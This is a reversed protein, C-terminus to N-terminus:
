NVVVRVPNIKGNGTNLNIIYTGLQLDLGEFTFQNKGELINTSRANIVKGTLDTIQIQANSYNEDSSIEVTFNGKTPNPFVIMSNEVDACSASIPGYIKEAGNLDVQKLRYYTVGSFPYTDFATYNLVSSSNGAATVESVFEWISLDRSREVIFSQSNQETATTWKIEVEEKNCNAAFSTFTVPLPTAFESNMLWFESFGPITFEIYSSGAITEIFGNAISITGNSEQPIYLNSTAYSTSDAPNCNDQWSGNENLGNYKSLNIDGISFVDDNVNISTTASKAVLAAVEATTIPFRITAPLNNTPNIYWSRGLVATKYYDNVPDLCSTTIQADANVYSNATVSGFDATPSTGKISVVLKGDSTYFHTWNSGKVICTANDTPSLAATVTPLTLTNSGTMTGVLCGLADVINTVSYTTTATPVVTSTWSGPGTGTLTAGNSLTMTWAGTATINGTLPFDNGYCVNTSTSTFTSTPKPKVVVSVLSTSMCNNTTTATATYTSTVLPKVYVTGADAGAAYSTTAGANTFVDATGTSTWTIPYTLAYGFYMVPKKANTAGGTNLNCQNNGTGGMTSVAAPTYSDVTVATTSNAGSHCINVLINSNGDWAFPVSFTQTNIGVTPNINTGSYVTTFAPSQYTTGSLATLSTSTMGITYSAMTTTGTGATLVNFGLSNLNAAGNIGATNLEAKTILYQVRSQNALAAGQRYPSNAAAGAGTSTGVIASGTSALSANLTVIQDQCITSSSPSLIVAGPMPNVTISVPASNVCIGASQSVNLTYPTTSSPNFTWGSTANGTVGTAPTWTYTDYSSGGATVTVVSTTSGACISSATESLTFPPLPNVVVQATSNSAKCGFSNTAEVAYSTSVTPAVSTPNQVASTYGAPTSTWAYSVPPNYSGTISIDDISFWGQNSASYSNWAFYYVGSTTPTFSGSQQAYTTNTFNAVTSITTTQSAVTQATGVTVKFSESYLTNTSYNTYWSSVNYTVGAVLNFSQSFAWTNAANTTNYTYNLSQTGTRPYSTAPVGAVWNNGTGANTILWGAPLGSEFGQTYNLNVADNGDASSTLNVTTGACIAATSASATVSIPIANVTLAVPASNICTGASQSVNLTYNTTTTPNFSWGATENGTVGTNPSWTYTDYSAAGTSITIPTATSSGNCIATAATSLAFAPAPNVTATVQTRASECAVSMNWNYFYYYTTSTPTTIFGNTISGVTGLAYPFGGLSSERVLSPASIALLRYGTGVPITWGLSITTAALGTGAPITPTTLTQLVTGASNQLQVQMTGAVGANFVQVSNLTFQTTVDFVLGYTAATTGTTTAPSTRAGTIISPTTSAAVFYNTTTSISPTTFSTGTGLIAGGSAGAYWNLISGASTTAGLTVTGTGCIAAPTNTLVTPNNVTVTLVNSQASTCSSNTVNARYYTTATLTPTTYSPAIAGSINTWVSNDTSSQWQILGTHGTLSLVSSGSICIQTVTAAAIGGVSAPTTTINVTASAGCTGTSQSASLTYVTSLTPNFTWGTTANGSVTSPDPSWVYTDFDAAGASVTIPTTSAVGGCNAGTNSSLTFTPAPTVTITIPTRTSSCSGVTESVHYTVTSSVATPFTNAVLYSGQKIVLDDIEHAGSVGGTRARFLHAWAAKNASAYSAPLQVNAFLINGGVSLTLQGLDNISINVTPNTNIWTLDSSYALIGNTGVAVGPANATALTTSPTYIVRVGAAAAGGGYDDFSVILKSGSGYEANRTDASSVDDGFSYSLGDALPAIGTRLQFSVDLKTSNIGSAPILYAGLQNTAITTLGLVGANLAATGSITGPAVTSSFDNSFYNTLAGSYGSQNVINGGTAADYWILNASPQGNNGSYTVAPIQTGCQTLSTPTVSPAVPVPKITVAAANATAFCGTTPNTATVTYVQSIDSATANTVSTTGTAAAITPTSNWSWTLSSTINTAVQGGFRFVPRVSYTLVQSTNDPCITSAATAGSVHTKISSVFSTADAKCTRSMTASSAGNGHCFEIVLNSTGDWLIPTSFTLTNIGLTPLLSASTYVQTLGSTIFSSANTNTTLGVKVSLDIMPLTGAATIDLAVSTINGASLGFSSLESALIIHQTHINSWLSYFPNSYTASTTAGAGVTATGSSIGLSTAAVSIPADSCVIAPTATSSAISPKTNVTINQTATLTCSGATATLTYVYPGAVTPTINAPNATVATTAGSGATSSWSYAMGTTSATPTVTLTFADTLCSTSTVSSAVTLGTVSLTVVNSIVASCPASGSVTVRYKYGDMANTVSTFAIASTTAGSVNAGSVTAWTSGGNTSVEWLYTLNSGTAAVSFGGTTANSCITQNSPQTGIVPPNYVTLLAGNSNVSGGNLSCRYQKANDAITLGSLSLADTTELAIDTWTSGGNTSVQWQYTPATGSTSISFSATGADSCITQLAPQATISTSSITLIAAGSTVPACPSTGTVICRYRYGNETTATALDLSSTTVGSYNGGNALNNWTSGGNTSEQWQYTLGTGTAVVTFNAPDNLLVVENAPQTGIAVVTNVTLAAIGTNICGNADTGSITYSTSASPNATVAAGTTASLGTAPTWAYTSAGSATIITSGDSCITASPNFSASITPLTFLTLASGSTATNAGITVVINGAEPTADTTVVIQTATNSVITCAEGNLTVATAGTLTTGTITITRQANPCANTPTFSTIVPPLNAHCFYGSYGAALISTATRLANPTVAVYSSAPTITNYTGAATTSQTIIKGSAITADNLGVFCNTLNGSGSVALAEWRNSSLPSAAGAGPTGSNTNFAQGRMVVAGGASTTPDIHVPLYTTGDGVPFLTTADYTGVATRSLAFTRAFPGTIQGATYALTGAATTTGLTLLNTATTNILGSTMTLTGSISLPTSITVGTANTNNVTLGNLSATPAALLNRFTGSGSITQANATGSATANSWTGLNIAVTSSLTGNNTINGAIYTTSALQYEGSIINLNGMIGITATTKVFRNAGTLADVEVNGFSFYASSVWLYNYFGNSHGGPETSIGNGFRTTHGTGCAYNSASSYGVAYDTTSTGAHPDVITIRGGTLNLLNTNIRLLNTGTLVSNVIVGAANGDINIEGGSQNFTSAILMNGNVNLTGGSVTLTGNNTLPTNNLTCGVTLDGSAVVLTGGSNITCNKSVNSATNVTVTHGTLITINDACTPVQGGSWISGNNWNGSSASTISLTSITQVTSNLGACSGNTSRVRYFYATGASLGTVSYTLVNGVDLGNYGSVFTAFTNVTSVDLIYSTAGAVTAWNASFSYTAASSGAASVPATSAAPNVGVTVSNASICGNNNVNVTYTGPNTISATQNTGLFDSWFYTSNTAPLATGTSVQGTCIQTLDVSASSLGNVAFQIPTSYATAAGCITACRYYMAGASTLTPTTYTNTTASAIDTFTINDTSSQWQFTVGSSAFPVALIRSQGNCVVSNQLPSNLSVGMVNLASAVADTKTILISSITKAYNAANLSLIVDYLGPQTATGELVNTALLVRGIGAIAYNTGYWDSVNNGTFIQNTGDSFNVQATFASTGSGSTVLLALTRASAPNTLTLTGSMTGTVLRLSNNLNSSALQYKVGANAVVASNILGSVPLSYTPAANGAIAKFDASVFGYGGLDIQSASASANGVGNAIIDTNFGTVLSPMWTYVDGSTNSVSHSVVNSYVMQSSVTCVVKLRYFTTATIAQTLNGYFATPAGVASWGTSGDASTEWTFQMSGAVTYGTNTLTVTAGACSSANSIAATGALPTGSCAVLTFEDAGICPNTARTDGDYDNTTGTGSQGTQFFSAVNSGLNNIHLDSVSVFDPTISFSNVNGGFGAQIGAINTRDSGIFGPIASATNFSNSAFYDNYNLTTFATNAAASYIAYNKQTANTGTQTNAFINNQVNLASAGTGIYLATTLATTSATGMSGTMNVSNHLLNVGGTTTTLTSSNCGICIGMSSSAGFSSWNSGNVNYIINNSVTLNSAATGTGIGIGQAGYGGTTTIVSQTIINRSITSSVFGADVRLAVPMTTTTGCNGSLTNQSITSNLGNGVQILNFAVTTSAVTQIANQSITINDNGGSSVSATGNSYVGVSATINNNQITNNDNDAGSSGPATGGISVGYTTAGTATLTINCNKITNNTAGLGAGLSVVSVGTPATANSNNITLDRTATGNNSGDITVYDAGNIRILAGSAVSGTITANNGSAPKITLTYAGVNANVNISIPFTESASYTADTLNFVINSTVCLASNYAAVAATLTPYNGATGVTYTGGFSAVGTGSAVVNQSTAGGGSVSINGNYSIAATPTLKVFVTANVAGASNPLTVTSTYTGGLTTSYTYGALAAITLDGTLNLGNVTFSNATSTSGVCVNGFATLAGCSLSPVAAGTTFSWVSCGTATSSANKPVIKWYYTTGAALTPSYTTGTQNLPNLLNTAAANTGFYIDYSTAANAAAWSLPATQLVGTEGNTPSVLSTCQVLTLFEDAGIDPTSGDRTDGDYDTTYTAIVQATGEIGATNSAGDIHLFNSSTGVFSLFTPNVSQSVQDRTAMATKYTALTTYTNTGDTFLGSTGFFNNNNATAPYNTLTAASRRYAVALAAGKPTIANVINNNRLDLSSTTATANITHFIGSGGFTAATSTGALYITNYYINQTSTATTSTISIGRIGDANANATATLNGILNNYIKNTTGGSVLIGNVVGTAGTCLSSIGQIKNAYVNASTGGSIVVGSIIPSGSSTAAGVSINTIHNNYINSATGVSLQIANVTPSSTIVGTLNLATFTNNYINYPGTGAGNIGILNGPATNSNILNLANRFVGGSGSASTGSGSIGTTIGTTSVNLNLTNKAVVSNAGLSYGWAIGTVAGTTTGTYSITNNEIRKSGSGTPGGLQSIGNVITSGSIGTFTITNNSVTDAVNSPTGTQSTFFMTGSAAVRDITATNNKINYLATVTGNSLIGIMNGTSRITSSTTNLTNSVVNVTGSGATVDIYTIAGAGFSGAGSVAQKITVTNGLGSAGVNVTTGVGAATIGTVASTTAAASNSQNILVTNANLTNTASAYNAKIGIIAAANAATSTQNITISNTSGVITGTAIGHGFDIATIATTGTNTMTVTNNSITTTYTVGVPATGSSISIATSAVTLTAISNVTNYAINVGAGNRYIIGASATASRNWPGTSATNNGYTITNATGAASGGFDNGLETIAATVPPCIFYIGFAVNSITNSYVKNNSNTGTSATADLATNAGPSTNTTTSSSTSLVGVTNAYVSNLTITNGQITNNQAGDTASAHILLIGAETMTNTAGTATVTNAANEVISFSKITVYDAGVLKFVADLQGNATNVGATITSSSGQITITNVATGSKTIYYGTGAPATENGTLTIVVPATITAANLATIANALSTYTAALGSGGNTAVQGFAVSQLMLLCVAVFGILKASIRARSSLNKFNSHAECRDSSSNTLGLGSALGSKEIVNTYNKKMTKTKVTELM